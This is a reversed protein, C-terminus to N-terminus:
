TTADYVREAPSGMVLEAMERKMVSLRAEQEPTRPDLRALELFEETVFGNRLTLSVRRGRYALNFVFRARVWGLEGRALDPDVVYRGGSMAGTVSEFADRAGPGGFATHIGIEEREAFGDPELLPLGRQLVKFAHAVGGPSNGAHLAVLEGFSFAM